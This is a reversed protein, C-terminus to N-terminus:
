KRHYQPDDVRVVGGELRLRGEAFLRIAEPYAICEQEFVRAALADATDEAYAPVARQLIIPGEDYENNVFHVTCGSVKCGRALVAEHVHHGYMGKGGFAPLLAPHINMVRGLYRQPIIWYSLFGALLILDVRADDLLKVMADSYAEVTLYEKPRVLHTPAGAAKGIDIGRVAPRSAIVVAVEAALKGARIHDLINELTRGGGSLLVGLRIPNAM